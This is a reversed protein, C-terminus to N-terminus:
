QRLLHLRLVTYPEEKKLDQPPTCIAMLRNDIGIEESEIEEIQGDKKMTLKTKDNLKIKWDNDEKFSKLNILEKEIESVKGLIIEREKPPEVKTAILRKVNLAGNEGLYGLAIVTEQLELDAFEIEKKAKAVLRIITTEASTSAQKLGNKTEITLSSNVLDKITGVFASPNGTAYSKIKEQVAERIQKVKEDAEVSETAEASEEAEQAFTHHTIIQSILWLAVFGCLWKNKRM